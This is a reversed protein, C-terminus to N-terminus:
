GRRAAREGRWVLPTQILLKSSSSRAAISARRAFSTASAIAPRNDPEAAHPSPVESPLLAGRVHRVTVAGLVVGVTQKVM